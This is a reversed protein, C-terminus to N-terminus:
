FSILNTEQGCIPTLTMSKQQTVSGKPVEYFCVTGDADLFVCKLVCMCSQEGNCPIRPGPNLPEQLSLSALLVCDSLLILHHTHCLDRTKLTM